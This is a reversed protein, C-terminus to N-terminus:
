LGGGIAVPVRYPHRTTLRLPQFHEDVAKCCGDLTAGLRAGLSYGYVTLSYRLELVTYMGRM